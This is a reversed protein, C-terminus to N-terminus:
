PAPGCAFVQTQADGEFIWGQALMQNFIALSDTYRHNPAGGQGNNYLRYIPVTGAPCTRQGPIGQPMQLDFVNGEFEWVTGTKLITCEDPYPTYFHSSKPAFSQDSFFRCVPSLGAADETWVKFSQGTRVWGINVTDLNAIESPISTIFYHGFGAYYYEIARGVSVYSAAAGDGGILRFLAPHETRRYFCTWPPLISCIQFFPLGESSSGVLIRDGSQIAVAYGYSSYGDWFTTVGHASFFIDPSGDPNLRAVVGLRFGNGTPNLDGSAGSVVIRQRSDLALAAATSPTAPDVQLTALGNAGFSLDRNGGRDLRVIAMRDIGFLAVSGAVLINGDPQVIISRAALDVPSNTRIVGGSGFSSDLEGDGQFRAILDGAALILAGDPQQAFASIGAPLGVQTVLVGGPAFTMDPAGNAQFAAFEFFSSDGFGNFGVVVIRGGATAVIGGPIFLASNGLSAVGGSGFTPDLSGDPLLRAISLPPIGSFAVVLKGDSQQSICGPCPRGPLAVQGTGNGFTPDPTGDPNLRSVGAGGLAIIRGDSQVLVATTATDTGSGLLVIGGSGFTPDLDGPTAAVVRTACLFWSTILFALITLLWRM